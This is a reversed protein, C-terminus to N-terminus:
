GCSDHTYITIESNIYKIGLGSLYVITRDTFFSWVSFSKGACREYRVGIDSRQIFVFYHRYYYPQFKSRLAFEVINISTKRFIYIYVWKFLRAFIFVLKIDLFINSTLCYIIFLSYLKYLKITSQITFHISVM